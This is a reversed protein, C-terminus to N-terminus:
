TSGVFFARTLVKLFALMRQRLEYNDRILFKNLMVPCFDPLAELNRADSVDVASTFHRSLAEIRDTPAM